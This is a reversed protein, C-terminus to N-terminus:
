SRCSPGPLNNRSSGGSPESSEAPLGAQELRARVGPAGGASAIDVHDNLWDLSFKM